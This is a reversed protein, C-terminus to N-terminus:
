LIITEHPKSFHTTGGGGVTVTGRKPFIVLRSSGDNLLVEMQSREALAVYIVYGTPSIVTKWNDDFEAREVRNSFTQNTLSTSNSKKM